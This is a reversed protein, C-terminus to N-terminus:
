RPKVELHFPDSFLVRGFGEARRRGIGAEELKYLAHFANDDLATESEYLFVSGTDIAYEHARPMGWLENWGMVRRTSAAQYLLKLTPFSPGVLGMLTKEGLSGYYLLREDCLILPSHLTAAFYFTAPTHTTWKKMYGQLEENFRLLRAKFAVFPDEDQEIEQTSVTVKGMGRSRGTGIRVWGGPGIENIFSSFTAALPGSDPFRVEGWFRMEEEFVQRNYLISEEVSGRERNIGTHTRLRKHKEIIASHLDHQDGTKRRYFGEFHEMAAKCIKCEKHQEIVKLRKELVDVPPLDPGNGGMTKYTAWDFLTDRVGHHEDDDDINASFFGKHRKCSQATVPIPYVPSQAKKSNENKDDDDENKDDNKFAAPYLNPFLVEGSLFLQEFEHEHGGRLIRHAAALSGLFTSGPIYPATALGGPAHDARIALPSVADLRIAIHKM